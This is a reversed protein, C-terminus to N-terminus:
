SPPNAHDTDGSPDCIAKVDVEKYESIQSIPGLPSSGRLTAVASSLSDSLQTTQDGLLRRIAYSRSRKDDPSGTRHLMSLRSRLPPSGATTRDSGFSAGSSPPPKQHNASPRM